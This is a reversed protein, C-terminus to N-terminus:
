NNWHLIITFRSGKGVDSEVSVGGGLLESIQKVLALGLGTGEYKRALSADLQVFPQFLRPFDEQRIGIGTDWVTIAVTGAGLDGRVDIGLEGNQQTFKSANNLLNSLVQNLRHEDVNITIQEPQTSFHTHQNKKIALPEIVRLAVQCINVLSCPGTDPIVSGSQLMSYDLVDNIVNLLRQGNQEINVVAKLQKETLAGYNPMQLVQSLGLVGTLPTRLEHSMAAMFEDKTRLAKELAINAAKLKATREQVRKELEAQALALANEAKKRDSIDQVIYLLLKHNDVVSPGAYIEVDSIEGTARRHLSEFHTQDLNASRNLVNNIHEVPLTSVQNINMQELEEVRWGYFRAAAQNTKVISGNLPDILLKIAANNEFIDHYLQESAALAEQALKRETIDEFITAFCGRQPCFTRVHLYRNLSESFYEYVLPQGTMAVKGYNEIQQRDADPIIELLTKGIVDQPKLGTHHEYAANVDLFRFDITDGNEDTIIEHLAFGEAMNEFLLRYRSLEEATARMSIAKPDPNIQTM